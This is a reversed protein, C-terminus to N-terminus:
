DGGCGGGGGDGGSDSDGDGISIGWTSETRNPLLILVGFVAIAWAYGVYGQFAVLGAALLVFCGIYTKMAAGYSPEIVSLHCQEARQQSISM